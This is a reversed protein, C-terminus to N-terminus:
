YKPKRMTRLDVGQGFIIEGDSSDQHRKMFDEAFNIAKNRTSFIRANIWFSPHNSDVQYVRDGQINKTSTVYIWRGSDNTWKSLGRRTKEKKWNKM